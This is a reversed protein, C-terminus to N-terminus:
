EERPKSVKLHPFTEVIFRGSEESYYIFVAQENCLEVDKQLLDVVDNWTQKECKM